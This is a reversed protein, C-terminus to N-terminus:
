VCTFASSPANFGDTSSSRSHRRFDLATSTVKQSSCRHGCHCRKGPLPKLRRVGIQWHLAVHGGQSTRRTPEGRCWELLFIKSALDNQDVEPSVGADIPPASEGIKTGPNPFILSVPQDYYTHM